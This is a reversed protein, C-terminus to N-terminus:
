KLIFFLMVPLLNTMNFVHHIVKCRTGWVPFLGFISIIQVHTSFQGSTFRFNPFGPGKRCIRIGELVGNCRLQHLVLNWEMYGSINKTIVDNRNRLQTLIISM